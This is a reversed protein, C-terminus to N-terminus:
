QAIAILLIDYSSQHITLVHLTQRTYHIRTSFSYLLFSQAPVQFNADALPQMLVKRSAHAHIVFFILVRTFISFAQFFM